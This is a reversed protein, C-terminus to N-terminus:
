IEEYTVNLRGKNVVMDGQKLTYLVRIEGKAVMLEHTHVSFAFAGEKIRYKGSHVATEEFKFDMNIHGSREYRLTNGGLTIAHKVHQDDYFSLTNGKKIGKTDIQEQEDANEILCRVKVKSM